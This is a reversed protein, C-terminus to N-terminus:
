CMKVDILFKQYDKVVFKKGKQVIVFGEKELLKKHAKAGSPYKENLFGGAKVTRWYPIESPNALVVDDGAKAEMKHVANYCPFSDELKLIKPLTAKDTLKHQWSKKRYSM